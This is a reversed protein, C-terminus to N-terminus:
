KQWHHAEDEDTDWSLGSAPVSFTLISATRVRKVCNVVAALADADAARRSAM